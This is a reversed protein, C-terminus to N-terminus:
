GSFTKNMHQILSELAHRSHTIYQELFQGAKPPEWNTKYTYRQRLKNLITNESCEENMFYKRIRINKAFEDHSQLLTTPHDDNPIPIHNLGLALCHLANMSLHASSLNFISKNNFQM